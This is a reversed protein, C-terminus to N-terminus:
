NPEVDVNLDAPNLAPDLEGLVVENGDPDTAKLPKVYGLKQRAAFNLKLAAWAAHQCDTALNTLDTVNIDMNPWVAAYPPVQDFPLAAMVPDRRIDFVLRHLEDRRNLFGTLSRVLGNHLDDLMGVLEALKDGGVRFSRWQEETTFHISPLDGAYRQVALSPRTDLGAGRALDDSIGVVITTSQSYIRVLKIHVSYAAATDRGVEEENARRREDDATEKALTRAHDASKNAGVVAGIWGAVVAIVGGVALNVWLDNDSAAQVITASENFAM